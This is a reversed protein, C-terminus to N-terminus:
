SKKKFRRTALGMVGLVFIALTSPEPVVNSTASNVRYFALPMHHTANHSGYNYYGEVSGGAAGTHWLMTADTRVQVYTYSNNNAFFGDGTPTMFFDVSVNTGWNNGLEFMDYFTQYNATNSFSFTATGGQNCFTSSNNDICANDAFASSQFGANKFMPFLENATAISWGYLDGGSQLRTNILHDYNTWSQNSDLTLWEFGKADSVVNTSSDRSLEGLTTIVGASAVNVMCSASLVVGTIVAKLFKNNMKNEKEDREM